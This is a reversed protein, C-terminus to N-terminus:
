IGVCFLGMSGVLELIVLWLGRVVGVEISDTWFDSGGGVAVSFQAGLRFAVGKNDTWRGGM